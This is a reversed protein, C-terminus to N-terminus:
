IYQIMRPYVNYNLWKEQFPKLVMEIQLRNIAALAVADSLDSLNPTIQVM